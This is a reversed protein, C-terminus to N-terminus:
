NGKANMAAFPVAGEPLAAAAADCLCIFDTQQLKQPLVAHELAQVSLYPLVLFVPGQGEVIRLCHPFDAEAKAWEL